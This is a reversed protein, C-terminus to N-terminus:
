ALNVQPYIPYLSKIPTNAILQPQRVINIFCWMIKPCGILGLRSTMVMEQALMPGHTFPSWYTGVFVGNFVVWGTTRNRSGGTQHSRLFQAPGCTVRNSSEVSYIIIDSSMSKWIKHLCVTVKKKKQTIVKKQILSNKRMTGCLFIDSHKCARSLVHDLGRCPTTRQQAWLNHCQWAIVLNQM